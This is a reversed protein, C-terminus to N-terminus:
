YDQTKFSLLSLFGNFAFWHAANRMSKAQTETELGQGSKEGHHVTDNFNYVLSARGEGPKKQDNYKKFYWFAFWSM